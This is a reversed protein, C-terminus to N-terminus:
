SKKLPFLIACIFNIGEGTYEDIGNDGNGFSIKIKYTTKIYSYTYM